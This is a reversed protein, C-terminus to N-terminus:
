CFPISVILFVADSGHVILRPIGINFNERLAVDMNAYHSSFSDEILEALQM